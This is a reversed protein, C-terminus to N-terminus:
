VNAERVTLVDEGFLSGDLKGGPHTLTLGGFFCLFPFSGRVLAM